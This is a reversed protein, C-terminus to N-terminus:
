EEGDVPQMIANEDPAFDKDKTVFLDDSFPTIGKMVDRWIPDPIYRKGKIDLGSWEEFDELSRETGLGYVGLPGAPVEGPQPWGYINAVRAKCLRDRFDWDNDDWHCSRHSVRGYRHSCIWAAPHWLDWGRTWARLATSFEEGSFYLQPDYPVERLYAGPAWAFHGSWCRAPIPKGGFVETRYSGGACHPGDDGWEYPFMAGYADEAEDGLALAYTTMVSRPQVLASQAKLKAVWDSEFRMHADCQLYWPEDEYMSLAISRAWCCGQSDQPDIRILDVQPLSVLGDTIAGDDMQLMVAVRVRAGANDILSHVTPVVDPDNYAAVAAFVEATM